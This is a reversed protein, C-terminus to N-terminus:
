YLYIYDSYLLMETLLVELAIYHLIKILYTAYDSFTTFQGAAFLTTSVVLMNGAQMKRMLPQFHRM